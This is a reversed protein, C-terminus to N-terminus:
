GCESCHAPPQDDRLRTPIGSVATGALDARDAGRLRQGPCAGEISPPAGIASPRLLVSLVNGGATIYTSVDPRGCGSWPRGGFDRQLSEVPTATGAARFTMGRERCAQECRGVLALEEPTSRRFLSQGSRALGEEFYVLRQPDIEQIGMTGALEVLAPLEHLNERMATFWLSVAPRTAAQAHQRDM